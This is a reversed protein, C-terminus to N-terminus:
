SIKEVRVDVSKSAQSFGDYGELVCHRLTILPQTNKHSVFLAGGNGKLTSGQCDIVSENTYVDFYEVFHTQNACLRISSTLPYSQLTRYSLCDKNEFSVGTVSGSLTSSQIIFVLTILAGFVMLVIAWDVWERRM